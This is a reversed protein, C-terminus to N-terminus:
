FGFIGKPLQVDLWVYFILYSLSATVLASVVQIWLRQRKMIGFLLILLASTAILYGLKPLLLAYVFLSALVLLVKYWEVGRWLGSIKEEATGKLLSAILLVISFMGLVVGGWFPLFGPGPAHLTGIGVPICILCVFISIGLWFLSSLIDRLNMVRGLILLGQREPREARTYCDDGIL